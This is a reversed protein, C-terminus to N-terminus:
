RREGDMGKARYENSERSKGAKHADWGAEWALAPGEVELNYATSSLDLQENLKHERWAEFRAQEETDLM